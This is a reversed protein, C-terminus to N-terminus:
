FIANSTTKPVSQKINKNGFKHVLIKKSKDRYMRCILLCFLM